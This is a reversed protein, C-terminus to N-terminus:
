MARCKSVGQDFLVLKYSPVRYNRVDSTDGSKYISFNYLQGQPGLSFIGSEM